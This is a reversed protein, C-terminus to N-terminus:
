WRLLGLVGTVGWCGMRGVGCTLLCSAASAKALSSGAALFRLTSPLVPLLPADAASVCCCRCCRAVAAALSGAAPSAAPALLGLGLGLGLLGLFPEAAAASPPSPVAASAPLLPLSCCTTFFALLDRAAAAPLSLSLTPLLLRAAQSWSGACGEQALSSAM